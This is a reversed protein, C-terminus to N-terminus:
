NDYGGEEFLNLQAETTEMKQISPIKAKRGWYKDLYTRAAKNAVDIDSSLLQELL